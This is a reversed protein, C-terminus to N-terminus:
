QTEPRTRSTNSLSALPALRSVKIRHVSPGGATLKARADRNPKTEPERVPPRIARSDLLARQGDVLHNTRESATPWRSLRLLSM